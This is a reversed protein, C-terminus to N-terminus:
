GSGEFAGESGAVKFLRIHGAGYGEAVRVHDHPPYFRVFYKVNRLWEYRRRLDIAPRKPHIVIRRGEVTHLVVFRAAGSTMGSFARGVRAVEDGAAITFGPPLSRNPQIAQGWRWTGARTGSPSVELKLLWTACGPNAQISAAVKWREGAQSHGRELMLRKSKVCQTTVGKGEASAGWAVVLAALMVCALSGRVLMKSNRFWRTLESV